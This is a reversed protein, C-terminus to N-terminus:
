VKEFIVKTTIVMKFVTFELDKKKMMQGNDKMNIEMQINIFEMDMENHIKGIVLINKVKPLKWSETAKYKILNSNDKIFIM